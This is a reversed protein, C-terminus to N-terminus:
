ESDGIYLYDMFNQYVSVRLKAIQPIIHNEMKDFYEKCRECLQYEKTRFTSGNILEYPMQVNKPNKTECGCRDCYHKTM